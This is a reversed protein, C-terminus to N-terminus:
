DSRSRWWVEEPTPILFGQFTMKLMRLGDRSSKEKIIRQVYQYSCGKVEAVQKATLMQGM